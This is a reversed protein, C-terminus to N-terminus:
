EGKEGNTNSLYVVGNEDVWKYIKQGYGKKFVKSHVNNKQAVSTRAASSVPQKQNEFSALIKACSVFIFSSFVFIGSATLAVKIFGAKKGGAESAKRAVRATKQRRGAARQQRVKDIAEQALESCKM